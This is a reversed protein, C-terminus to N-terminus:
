EKVEEVFIDLVPVEGPKADFALSTQKAKAIMADIEDAVRRATLEDRVLEAVLATIDERSPIHGASILRSVLQVVIQWIHEM